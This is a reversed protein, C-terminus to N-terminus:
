SSQSLLKCEEILFIWVKSSISGAKLHFQNKNNNNGKNRQLLLFHHLYFFIWLHFIFKQSRAYSHKGCVFLQSYKTEFNKERFVELSIPQLPCETLLNKKKKKKEKEM